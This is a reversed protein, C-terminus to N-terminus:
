LSSFVKLLSHNVRLIRSKGQGGEAGTLTSLHSSQFLLQRGTVLPVRILILLGGNGGNGVVRKFLLELMKKEVDQKYVYKADKPM